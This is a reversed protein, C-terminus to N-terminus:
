FATLNFDITLDRTAVHVKKGTLERVEKLFKREDSNKDSLHILVINHVTSLDNALLLKKTTDFSMHSQVIRNKLGPHVKGSSNNNELVEECYNAEIILQNLGEYTYESYHTDTLFLVNGCEAHNILFGFPEAGEHIVKFPLVKFNGITNIYGSRMCVFRHHNEPSIAKVTGTSAFIDIGAAAYKGAYKCHDGHEHTIICGNVKDLDFNLGKLLSSMPMGAEIVLCETNNHLLYGNGASSSGLVTLKM